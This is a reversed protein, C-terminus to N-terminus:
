SPKKYNRRTGDPLIRFRKYNWMYQETLGRVCNEVGKNLATAAVLKDTHSVNPDGPFYKVHWGAGKPLREAYSFLVQADTRNAFRALLTMTNAPVNFFPAFCGNQLDPEQDPLIGVTEGDKLRRLISKIGQPDLKTPLAGLNTRGNVTLTEMAPLKPPQYLCAVPKNAVLPLCCAEWAGLHPAAIIVGRDSQQAERLLHEGETISILRSVKEPAQTWLWFSESLAKGTELLSVRAIRTRQKDDMDPFCLQLNIESTTRLKSHSIWAIWGFSAGVAHNARLPMRALVWAVSRIIASQM